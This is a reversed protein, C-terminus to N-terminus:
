ADDDRKRKKEKKAKKAEKKAKKAEKKAKKAKKDKKDSTVPPAVDTVDEEEKLAPEPSAFDEMKISNPVPETKWAAVPVRSSEKDVLLSNCARRVDNWTQSSSALFAEGAADHDIHKAKESELFRAMMDFAETEDVPVTTKVRVVRPLTSDM